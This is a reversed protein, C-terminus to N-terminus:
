WDSGLVEGGNRTIAARLTQESTKRDILRVSGDALAAQFGGSWHGQFPAVPRNPDFPLEDPKAWPVGQDAEVVLLTNSRGDPFDAVRQGQRGEFAARPGDFVRYLTHNPPLGIDKPFQYTKVVLDALPKNRPSDWPEDLKFQRYLNDQEIYPLITVRWSLLPKGTRSYIAAPPFRGYTDHYNHLALAIQKLNNASQTRSAAERVKGFASFLLLYSGWGLTSLIGFVLGLVLGTTAMGGGGVRGRGEHVDRQALIALIVAPIAAFLAFFLAAIGLVLAAVAKGSVVEPEDFRRRPRPYEDEAYDAPRGRRVATAAPEPEDPPVEARIADPDPVVQRRGCAPCEAQRGANEERAQLQRGCSCTFRIM